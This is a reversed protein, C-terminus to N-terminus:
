GNLKTLLIQTPSNRQGIGIYKNANYRIIDQLRDVEMKDILTTRYRRLSELYELENVIGFM